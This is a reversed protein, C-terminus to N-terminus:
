VTTEFLAAFFFDDLYNVSDKKMRHKLIYAITNSIEQFHVCSILAGFPMCKDIFYYMCDDLPCRARMTLLPWSEKSM